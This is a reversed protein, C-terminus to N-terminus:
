FDTLVVKATSNAVKIKKLYRIIDVEHEVKSVGIKFLNDRFM